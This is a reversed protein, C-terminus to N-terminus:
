IFNSAVFSDAVVGNIVGILEVTSTAATVDANNSTTAFSYVAANGAQAGGGYVVLHGSAANGTLTGMATQLLLEVTAGAATDTFDTVVGVGSNIEFVNQDQLTKGVAAGAAAITTFGTAAAGNNLTLKDSGAVIGTQFGTMTFATNAVGHAGDISIVTDAGGTALSVTTLARSADLTPVTITDGAAGDTIGFSTNPVYASADLTVAGASTSANITSAAAPAMAGTTFTLATAYTVNITEVNVYGADGTAAGTINLIDVGGAGDITDDADMRAGMNFTDIAAGGTLLYDMDATNHTFVNGAAALNYAVVSSAASALGTVAGTASVTVVDDGNASVLTTLANNQAPTLTTNVVVGAESMDLTDFGSITAGQLLVATGNPTLVDTGTSGTLTATYTGNPMIVTDAGPGGTFTGTVGTATISSAGAGSNTLTQGTTGFAATVTLGGTGSVNVSGGTGAGMAVTTLGASASTVSQNAGALTVTAAGTASNNAVSMGITTPIQLAGTNGSTLVVNEVNSWLARADFGGPALAITLTDNGAGGDITSAVLSAVAAVSIADDKVTSVASANTSAANSLAASAANITIASGAGQSGIGLDAATLADVGTLSIVTDAVAAVGGGVASAIVYLQDDGNVFYAQGAVPAIAFAAQATAVSNFNGLFVSPAGTTINTIALKDTGSVFDTIVDPAALTSFTNGGVVNAAFTFTDAGAGGTMTDIGRGGNISDIGAGAILTDAGNGGTLTDAGPGTTLKFGAAATTLGTSIVIGGVGSADVEALATGGGTITMTATGPSVVTMKSLNNGSVGVSRATTDTSLQTNTITATEIGTAALSQTISGTSTAGGVAVTIANAAGAWGTTNSVTNTGDVAQSVTANDTVGDVRGGAGTFVVTDVINTATPLAIRVGNTSVVEFGSINAGTTTTIAAASALTDTGEGGALTQSASISGIQLTDNGKGLDVSITDAADATFGVVNAQDNGTISGANATTAGGLNVLLGSAADGTIVVDTATSSVLTVQRTAGGSATGSANVNFKEIGQATLSSAATVAAGNLSVTIEDATGVTATAAMAVSTDGSSANVSVAPITALGSVTVDNLSGNNTVSTVGAILTADLATDQVANITINEISSGIVGTGYTAGGTSTNSLSLTDSGAGGTLNDGANLTQVTAGAVTSSVAAFTDGNAGASVIDLGTTLSQVAGVAAPAAAPALATDAAANATAVTTADSTVVAPIEWEAAAESTITHYTAVTVKNNFNDVHTKLAGDANAPDSLVEQVV